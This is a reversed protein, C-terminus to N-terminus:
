LGEKLLIFTQQKFYEPLQLLKTKALVPNEALEYGQELVDFLNFPEMSTVFFFREFGPANDLQFSESLAEESGQDLLLAGSRSGPFHLTLYGNGDISFITGYKYEAAFYKIQYVSGSKVSTGSSLLQAGRTTKRYIKMAAEGKVRVVENERSSYFPLRGPPIFMFFLIFLSLFAGALSFSRIAFVKKKKKDRAKERNYKWQIQLTVGEPPYNSFIDTNSALISKYRAALSTDSKMMNDLAKQETEPLEGLVYKELKLDSIDNYTM